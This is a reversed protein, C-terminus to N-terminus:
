MFKESKQTFINYSQEKKQFYNFGPGSIENLFHDRVSHTTDIEDSNRPRRPM